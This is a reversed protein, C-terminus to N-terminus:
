RKQGKGINHNRWYENMNKLENIHLRIPDIRVDLLVNSKGSLNFSLEKTVFNEVSTRSRTRHTSGGNTKRKKNSDTEVVPRTYKCSKVSTFCDDCPCKWGFDRANSEALREFVCYTCIKHNCPSLHVLRETIHCCHSCYM